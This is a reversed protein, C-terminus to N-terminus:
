CQLMNYTKASVRIFEKGIPQMRIGQINGFYDKFGYDIVCVNKQTTWLETNIKQTKRIKIKERNILKRVKQSKKPKDYTDILNSLYEKSLTVGYGKLEKLYPIISVKKGRLDSNMIKKIDKIINIYQRKTKQM